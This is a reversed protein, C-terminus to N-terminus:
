GFLIRLSVVMAGLMVFVAGLPAFRCFLATDVFVGAGMVGIAFNTPCYGSPSEDLNLLNALSFTTTNKQAFESPNTATGISEHLQGFTATNEFKCELSATAKAIACTAADGDCSFSASCSGGFTSPNCSPSEPNEECFTNAPDSSKPGCGGPSSCMGDGPGAGNGGQGGPGAGGPSQPGQPVCAGGNSPEYGPSCGGPGAGGGFPNGPNTPLPYCYGGNSYYGAVCGGGGPGGGQPNGGNPDTPPPTPPTPSGSPGSGNKPNVLPSCNPPTGTFGQGCTTPPPDPNPNPTVCVGASNRTQGSPCEEPPPPAACVGAENYEQGPPCPPPADPVNKRCYIHGAIIDASLMTVGVGQGTADQCMAVLVVRFPGLFGGGPQPCYGQYWSFPQGSQVAEIDTSGGWSTAGGFPGTGQCAAIEAVPEDFSQTCPPGNPLLAGLGICANSQASPAWRWLPEFLVVSANASSIAILSLLQVVLVLLLSRAAIM